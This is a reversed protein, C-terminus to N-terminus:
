FCQCSGIKFSSFHLLQQLFSYHLVIYHRTETNPFPILILSGPVTISYSNIFFLVLRQGQTIGLSVCHFIIYFFYFYKFYSLSLAIVMKLRLFPFVYVPTIFPYLGDNKVRTERSLRPRQWCTTPYLNHFMKTKHM